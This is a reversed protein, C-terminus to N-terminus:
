NKRMGLSEKMLDMTTEMLLVEKMGVEMLEEGHNHSVDAQRQM